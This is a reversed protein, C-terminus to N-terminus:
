FTDVAYHIEVVMGWKELLKEPVYRLNRNQNCWAKLERSTLYNDPTLRLQKVTIEFETAVVPM